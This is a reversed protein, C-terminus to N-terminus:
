QQKTKNFFFSVFCLIIGVILVTLDIPLITVLTKAQFYLVIQLVFGKENDPYTLNIGETNTSLFCKQKTDKNVTYCGLFYLARM